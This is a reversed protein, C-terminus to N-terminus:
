TGAKVGRELSYSEIDIIGAIVNRSLTSSITNDVVIYDIEDIKIESGVSYNVTAEPEEPPSEEPIISNKIEEESCSTLGIILVSAILFLLHRKM